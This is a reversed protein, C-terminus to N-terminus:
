GVCPFHGHFVHDNKDNKNKIQFQIEERNKKRTSNIRGPPRKQGFYKGKNWSQETVHLITMRNKSITGRHVAQYNTFIKIAVSGGEEM